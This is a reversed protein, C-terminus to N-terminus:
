VIWPVSAILSLPWIVAVVVLPWARSSVGLQGIWSVVAPSGWPPCVSHGIQASSAAGSMLDALPAYEANLAATSGFRVASIVIAAM